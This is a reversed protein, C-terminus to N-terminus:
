RFLVQPPQRDIRLVLGGDGDVLLRSGPKGRTVLHALQDATLGAGTILTVQDGQESITLRSVDIVVTGDTPLVLQSGAGLALAAGKSVVM